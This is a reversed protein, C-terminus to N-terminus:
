SPDGHMLPTMLSADARTAGDPPTCVAGMPMRDSPVGIGTARLLRISAVGVQSVDRQCGAGEERIEVVVFPQEDGGQGRV